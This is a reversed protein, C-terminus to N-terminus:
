EPHAMTCAFDFGVALRNGVTVRASLFFAGSLRENLTVDLEVVDGPKVMRKFRVNNMRTAVPVGDGSDKVFRSLLIAGAQM